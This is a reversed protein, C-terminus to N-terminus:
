AELGISAAPIAMRTPIQQLSWHEIAHGLIEDVRELASSPPQQHLFSLAQRLNLVAERDDLAPAHNQKSFKQGQETTIVPLHCYRPTALGLQQQLFIQRGTTDLLDSGRVVQTIDQEADDVVVALQYTHLGDRRKIVFDAMTDGLHMNQPGQLLDPFSVESGISVKMRIAGSGGLEQQRSQCVGNCAGNPGLRARTCGCYFLQGSETLTALAAAYATSRTSQYLVEEDWHLGHCQLSALISDAAGPDERPPDLDDMRVLWIGGQHRADLYSAV